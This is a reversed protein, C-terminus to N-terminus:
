DFQVFMVPGNRKVPVNQAPKGRVVEGASKNPLRLNVQGARSRVASCHSKLQAHVRSWEQQMRVLSDLMPEVLRQSSRTLGSYISDIQDLKRSLEALGAPPKIDLKMKKLVPQLVKDALAELPKMVVNMIKGPKELIDRVSFSVSKKTFPIKVTLKKGLTKDLNGVTSEAPKLKKDFDKLSRDVSQYAAFISTLRNVDSLLRQCKVSVQHIQSSASRIPPSIQGAASDFAASAGPISQSSIALSALETQWGRVSLSYGNVKSRAGAISQELQLLRQKMPKLVDKECKDTKKRLAHVQTQIRELNKALTRAVTRVKPVSYYPKLQDVLRDLKRDMERITRSVTIANDVKGRAGRVNSQLTSLEQSIKSIDSRLQSLDSDIRRTQPMNYPISSASVASSLCLAIALFITSTIKM